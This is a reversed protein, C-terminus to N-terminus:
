TLVTLSRVPSVRQLREYTLVHRQIEPFDPVVLCQFTQHSCDLLYTHIAHTQPDFEALRVAPGFVCVGRIM